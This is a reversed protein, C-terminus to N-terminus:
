WKDIFIALIFKKILILTLNLPAFIFAPVRCPTEKVWGLQKKTEINYGNRKHDVFVGIMIWWFAIFTIANGTM